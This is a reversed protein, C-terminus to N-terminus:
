ATSIEFRETLAIIQQRENRLARYDRVVAILMSTAVVLIVLGGGLLWRKAMRAMAGGRRESERALSVRRARRSRVDFTVRDERETAVPLSLGSVTSRESIPCEARDTSAPVGKQNPRRPPRAPNFHRM